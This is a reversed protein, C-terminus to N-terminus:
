LVGVCISCDPYTESARLYETIWNESVVVDDDTFLILSGNATELAALIANNKGPTTERLYRINLSEAYSNVLNRTLESGENDAVIIEYNGDPKEMSRFSDLTGALLNLRKYTALIISIKM